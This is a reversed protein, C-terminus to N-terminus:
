GSIWRYFWKFTDYSYYLAVASVIKEVLERASYCRVTNCLEDIEKGNLTMGNKTIKLIDDGSVVTIVYPEITVHWKNNHHIIEVKKEDVTRCHYHFGSTISFRGIEDIFSHLGGKVRIKEMIYLM